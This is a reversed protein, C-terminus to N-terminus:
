GAKYIDIKNVQTDIAYIADCIKQLNEIKKNQADNFANISNM